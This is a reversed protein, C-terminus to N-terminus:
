NENAQRLIKYANFVTEKDKQTLKIGSKKDSEYLAMVIKAHEIEHKEKNKSEYENHLRKMKGYPNLGYQPFLDKLELGIAHLVDVAMCGAFCKLLIRDDNTISIALSPNKDNHAPCCAMWANKGRPQVKSLRNLIDQIM